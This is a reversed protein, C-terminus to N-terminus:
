WKARLTLTVNRGPASINSSFVRYNTDAINEIGAQLTFHDTLTYAGKLNFIVWSPMGDPTAYAFNDEGVLNYDELKKQGNYMVDFEAKFKNKQYRLSTKGFLPAIHDLPYPTTDTEIRGYTYNLTSYLSLAETFEVSLYANLGYIYAKNANVNTIVQSSDGEYLIYSQGNFTGPQVTIADRYLTYYGGVGIEYKDLFSKSLTLDVNYTHEPGLDPNPVIVYGPVSEFVKSMDDVSPTRFGTAAQFSLRWGSDANLVTGLSGTVTTNDQTAEDYPFPFFRKDEFKSTLTHYAARVGGQLLFHPTVTYSNSVYLAASGTTSGGDPYRTDLPNTAGTLIDEVNATSNVKNYTGEFGYSWASAKKQKTFDANLTLIDLKEIRHNLNPSNFRRDHRSEEINQYGLIVTGQDLLGDGRDLQLAYSGFLRKQPGYYWDGFRLGGRSSQTLRDYRPVDSSTSYQFNFKHMVADSARFVFKQMFDYQTYGSGVQKEPDPNTVEVDEGNQREQYSARKWSAPHEDIGNKGQVLDGFDSYTFSTFSGLRAGGLSFDVHGTKESAASSYRAFANAHFETGPGSALIPNKTFFHMVGGLADSGYMVSGPGYLIEIRNMSANDLTIINQLHGARYIANNMRVGDVVLLVKNTEFGRIVPSGGGQQSKQVLINGTNQMVDASTQLNDFALHHARIVETAQPINKRQQEFRNASVVIESLPQISDIENSSADAYRIPVSNSMRQNEEPLIQSAPQSYVICHLCAIAFLTLIQKM